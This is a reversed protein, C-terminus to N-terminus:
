VVATVEEEEGEEERGEEKSVEGTVEGEEGKDMIAVQVVEKSKYNAKHLDMKIKIQVMEQEMRNVIITRTIMNAVGMNIMIIM